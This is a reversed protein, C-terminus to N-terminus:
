VSHIELLKKGTIVVLNFLRAVALKLDGIKLARGNRKCIWAREAGDRRVRTQHGALAQYDRGPCDFIRRLILRHGGGRQGLKANALCKRDCACVVMAHDLSCFATQKESLDVFEQDSLM